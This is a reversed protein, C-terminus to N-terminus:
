FLVRVISNKFKAFVDSAMEVFEANTLPTQPAKVGDYHSETSAFISKVDVDRRDYMDTVGSIVDAILESTDKLEHLKEETVFTNESSKAIFSKSPSKSRGERLNSGKANIKKNKMAEFDDSPMILANNKDFLFQQTDLFSPNNLRQMLNSQNQLSGQRMRTILLSFGNLAWIVYFESKFASEEQFLRRLKKRRNWAEYKETFLDYIVDIAAKQKEELKLKESPDLDLPILLKYKKIKRKKVAKAPANTNRREEVAPIADSSQTKTANGGITLFGEQKKSFIINSGLISMNRKQVWDLTDTFWESIDSTLEESLAKHFLHVLLEFYNARKRFKILEKYILKTPNQAIYAYIQAVEENGSLM